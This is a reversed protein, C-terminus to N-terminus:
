LLLELGVESLIVGQLFDHVFLLDVEVFDVHVLHNSELVLQVIGVTALALSNSQNQSHKCALHNIFM